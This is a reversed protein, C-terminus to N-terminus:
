SRHLRLPKTKERTIIGKAELDLQVTKMWWGAKAGGPFLHAPLQPLMARRVEALTFGPSKSPLVKLLTRRMAQYNAADVSRIKGPHNVNEVVVRAMVGINNSRRSARQSASLKKTAIGIQTVPMQLVPRPSVTAMLVDWQIHQGSPAPRPGAFRDDLIELQSIKSLTAWRWGTSSKSRSEGGTQYFFLRRVGKNIGYDHPEGIKRYGDLMFTVLRKEAIAFRILQDLGADVLDMM